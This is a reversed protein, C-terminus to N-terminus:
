KMSNIILYYYSFYTVSFLLYILPNVVKAQRLLLKLKKYDKMDESEFFKGVSKDQIKSKSYTIDFKEIKEWKFNDIDIILLLNSECLHVFDDVRRLWDSSLIKLLVLLCYSPLIKKQISSKSLPQSHLIIRTM